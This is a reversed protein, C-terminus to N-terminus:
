EREIKEAILACTGGGSPGQHEAGGSVYIDTRGLLGALVGGVFARAHRSGAIDSDDLMVHRKGRIEGNGSPEAKALLVKLSSKHGIGLREMANRISLTDISDSMVCHDIMLNGRWQKSMGMVIIEHGM